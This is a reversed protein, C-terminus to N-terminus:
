VIAASVISAAPFWVVDAGIDKVTFLATEM